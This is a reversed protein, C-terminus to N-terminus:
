WPDERFSKLFKLGTNLLEDKEQQNLLGDNEVRNLEDWYQLSSLLFWIMDLSDSYDKQTLSPFRKKVRVPIEDEESLEEFLDSLFIKGKSLGLGQKIVKSEDTESLWGFKEIMTMTEGSTSCHLTMASKVRESVVDLDDNRQKSQSFEQLVSLLIQKGSPM